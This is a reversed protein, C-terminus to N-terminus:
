LINFLPNTFVARRVMLDLVCNENPVTVSGSFSTGCAKFTQSLKIKEDCIKKADLKSIRPQTPV